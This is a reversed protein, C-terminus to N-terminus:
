SEHSYRSLQALIGATTNLNLARLKIDYNRPFSANRCMLAASKAIVSRNDISFNNIM